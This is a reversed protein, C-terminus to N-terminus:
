ARPEPGNTRRDWMDVIQNGALWVTVALGEGSGARRGPSDWTPVGVAPISSACGGRARVSRQSGPASTMQLSRPAQTYVAGGRQALQYESGCRRV